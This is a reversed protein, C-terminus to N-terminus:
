SWSSDHKCTEQHEPTYQSIKVNSITQSSLPLSLYSVDTLSTLTSSTSRTRATLSCARSLTSNQWTITGRSKTSAATNTASTVTTVMTATDTHTSNNATRKSLANKRQLCRKSTFCTVSTLAHATAKTTGNRVCKDGTEQASWRDKSAPTRGTQRQRHRAQTKDSFRKNGGSSTKGSSLSCIAISTWKLSVITIDLLQEQCNFMRDRLFRGNTM